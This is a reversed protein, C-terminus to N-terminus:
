GPPVSRARNLEAMYSEIASPELMSRRRLELLCRIALDISSYCHDAILAIKKLQDAGLLAINVVDRVYVIEAELLQNFPKRPDNDRQTPAISWRKIKTFCHPIFGQSKLDHDIEGFAPQRKYLAVFPVVTQIAVCTKLKKRGHQFIRGKSARADIKLYDIPPLQDIDDLRRTSVALTREVEGIEPLANFFALARPDPEFLSSMGGACVHLTAETGEGIAHPFITATPGLRRQLDGLRAEDPEFAFLKCLGADRLPQYSAFEGFSAAGIDAVTISEPPISLLEPLVAVPV